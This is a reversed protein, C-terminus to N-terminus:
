ELAEELMTRSPVPSVRGDPLHYIRCALAVRQSAAGVPDVDHGDVRVTPSGHFDAAVADEDTGIHRVQIEADLGRERLVDDLLALTEDLSPCGEWHLVEITAPARTGM